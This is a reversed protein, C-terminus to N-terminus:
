YDEVEFYYEEEDHLNMAPAYSTQSLLHMATPKAIRVSGTAHKESEKRM